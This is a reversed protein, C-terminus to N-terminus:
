SIGRNMTAIGTVVNLNIREIKNIDFIQGWISNAVNHNARKPCPGTQNRGPIHFKVPKPFSPIPQQQPKARDTLGILCCNRFARLDYQIFKFVHGKGWSLLPAANYAGAEDNMADANPDNREIWLGM